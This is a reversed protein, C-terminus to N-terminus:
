DSDPRKENISDHRKIANFSEVDLYFKSSRLPGRSQMLLSTPIRDDTSVADKTIIRQNEERLTKYQNFLTTVFKVKNNLAETKYEEVVEHFQQIRQHSKRDPKPTKEGPRSKLIVSMIEATKEVLFPISWTFIDMFNPLM